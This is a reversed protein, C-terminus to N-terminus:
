SALKIFARDRLLLDNPQTTKLAAPLHAELADSAHALRLVELMLQHIEIPVLADSDPDATADEAPPAADNLANMTQEIIWHYHAGHIHDLIEMLTAPEDNIQWSTGADTARAIWFREGNCVHEAVQSAHRDHGTHPAWFRWRCRGEASRWTRATTLSRACCHKLKRGSGCFCPANRANAPM